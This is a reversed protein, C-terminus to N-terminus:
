GASSGHRPRLFVGPMFDVVQGVAVIGAINEIFAKHAPDKHLYYERDEENDFESM